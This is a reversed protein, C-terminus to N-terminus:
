QETKEYVTRKTTIKNGLINNVLPLNSKINKKIEITTLDNEKQYTVEINNNNAYSNIEQKKNENYLTVILDLNSELEYKKLTIRGFEIVYLLIMLIVPLILVFEILAQGKNNKM